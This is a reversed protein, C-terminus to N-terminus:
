RLCLHLLVKNGAPDRLYAACAGPLHGRAAPAGECTGGVALRVAHFADVEAPSAAAFGLTIGNGSPAEGNGPKLV